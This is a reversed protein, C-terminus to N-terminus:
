CAAQFRQNTVFKTYIDSISIESRTVMDGLKMLEYVDIATGNVATDTAIEQLHTDPTTFDMSIFAFALNPIMEQMLESGHLTIYEKM